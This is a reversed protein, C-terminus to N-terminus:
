LLDLDRPGFRRDIRFPNTRADTVGTLLEVLHRSGAASVMIGHGSYGSNV